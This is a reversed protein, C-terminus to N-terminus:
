SPERRGSVPAIVPRRSPAPEPHSRRRSGTDRTASTTAPQGAPRPGAHQGAQPRRNRRRLRRNSRPRNKVLGFGPIRYPLVVRTYAHRTALSLSCTTNDHINRRNLRYERREPTDDTYIHGDCGPVATLRPRRRRTPRQTEIHLQTLRDADSCIPRGPLAVGHFRNRVPQEVYILAATIPAMRRSRSCAIM